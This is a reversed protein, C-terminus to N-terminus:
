SHHYLVHLLHELHRKARIRAALCRGLALQQATRALYTLGGVQPKRRLPSTPSRMTAGNLTRPPGRSPPPLRAKDGPEGPAIRWPATNAVVTAPVQPAAASGDAGPRSHHREPECGGPCEHQQRHVCDTIRRQALRSLVELGGTLPFYFHGSRRCTSIASRESPWRASLPAPLLAM